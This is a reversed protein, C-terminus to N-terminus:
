GVAQPDEFKVLDGYLKEVERGLREYKAILDDADKRKLYFNPDNMEQALTARETEKKEIDAEIRAREKVSRDNRRKQDRDPPPNPPATERKPAAPAPKPLGGNSSAAARAEMEAKKALYEDYNGLYRTAHGQGVEVVETVLQNLVHRDHSVIIVTGPFRRLAELLTDKAIIDLNNTPEDLLLCNNRQALVKALALRAREGGSLVGVRKQVDDGSFLMAGLLGRIEPTTMAQANDSLEKFVTTDYHLSEALNQAFYGAVVKDGVICEGATLPEIRAMLKMLTSKGAGNPGVLAIKQGREVILDVGNYVFLDGYRKVIGRLEFVRRTSRECQPFVISPSKDAGVPPQLREIKELQKIRSQVLRAKSAQYRFRSIFSEIHEIEARQNEYAAMELAFREERLVLYRSYNGVYETLKGRAVEVTRTTVRDLFYRDHSVLIIGGEYSTLYDELWNRAEIDLHNTPEDLMMFDPSDLLLRALAIRMRIGGSFEAVDRSLDEEKFGLGFLVATARSEASYFDHLELDHLVDGLEALAADHGPGSHERELLKEIELRRGDLAQMRDLASLTEALATRGGMEPADQPLYGVRTKQPRAIRGSDPPFVEGILRLLTSKGAGNLGVLGVRADDNMSWNVHDLILRAGYSKTINDLALMALVM